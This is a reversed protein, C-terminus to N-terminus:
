AARSDLPRSCAHESPARAINKRMTEAVGQESFRLDEGRMIPSALLYLRLADAGYRRVVDMPEPYNKFRKSMKRGDEALVLGNVIVNKYASKGFLGVSLVLLSYFWGRTQDVGEAIFDAPFGRSTGFWRGRPKFRTNEFPYHSQAYPMSGSEFWCDFVDPVRALPNGAASVLEVDDIFPRHLDLEYEGNHPLPVFDLTKVEGNELFQDKSEKLRASEAINMGFAGAFLSSAASEHTIILINKHAYKQELAYLFETTRRKVDSLSEGGPPAKEFRERISTYFNYYDSVPKGELGAGVNVESLRADYEVDHVGLAEAAIKVTERARVFPSACIVDIGKLSEASTRVQERGKETLHHPASATSSVVGKTNNEAEGHRMVFYRNGSRKTYKKVDDISGVFVAEGTVTDKWVPIPAGWYRTRSIAWDRAGELWKGFRGDRIDSPV